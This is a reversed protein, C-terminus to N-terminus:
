HTNSGPCTLLTALVWPWFARRTVPVTERKIEGARAESSFGRTPPEIGDRPVLFGENELPKQVLPARKVADRLDRREERTGPWPPQDPTCRM